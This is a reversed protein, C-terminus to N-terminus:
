FDAKLTKCTSSTGLKWNRVTYEDDFPHGSVHIRLQRVANYFTRKGRSDLLFSQERYVPLSRAALCEVCYNPDLLRQERRGSSADSGIARMIMSGTGLTAQYRARRETTLMVDAGTGATSSVCAEHGSDPPKWAFTRQRNTPYHGNRLTRPSLTGAIKLIPIPRFPNHSSNGYACRTM